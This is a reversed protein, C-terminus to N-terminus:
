KRNQGSDPAGDGAADRSSGADPGVRELWAERWYVTIQRPCFMRKSSYRAQCVVSDLVICPTRMQLMRGSREDIIRNVRKQVSYTGGCYPVMEADWYMGRNKNDTTITRLIQEHPRVRVLEGERLALSVEPTASGAPIYGRTRPFRSGSWLHRLRDYLWRMPGEIRLRSYSLNFYASYIMGRVITWASVNGSTFDEIYQRLDWWALDHTAYPLETAQCVYVSERDSATRQTTAALAADPAAKKEATPGTSGDSGNAPEGIRRLWATKWFILCGAQCGGHASGDCRTALHVADVVRRSRIPFVTDCTKHARKQVRFRRGCYALMEPMFPMGDLRGQPDLTALIEDKSRVEVWDGVRLRRSVRM